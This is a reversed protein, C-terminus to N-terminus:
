SPANATLGAEPRRELLRSEVYDERRDDDGGVPRAPRGPQMVWEIAIIDGRERTQTMM